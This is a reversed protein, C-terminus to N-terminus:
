QGSVLFVDWAWRGLQAGQIDKIKARYRFQNGYQDTKKSEKYNLEISSLGLASMTRLESPESVGNHNVDQWLRLSSFIADRNDILGDLNGGNEHKDYEALKVFGNVFQASNGFLETGSDINGNGNVDLTLWANTSNTATWAYHKTEHGSLDFWVGQAANTLQFGSGDIDIVIPSNMCMCDPYGAWIGHEQYCIWQNGNDPCEQPQDEEEGNIGLECNPADLFSMAKRSQNVDTATPTRGVQGACSPNSPSMISSDGCSDDNVNELGISHGLEHAIREALTWADFGAASLPITVEYPGGPPTLKIDACGGVPTGKKIIITPSSASQNREFKFLIKNGGSGVADNWMGIGGEPPVCGSCGGVANWINANTNAQPNGANDVNWSADIKVNIIPRGDSATGSTM